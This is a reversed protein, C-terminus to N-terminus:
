TPPTKSVSRRAGLTGARPLDASSSTSRAASRRPLAPRAHEGAITAEGTRGAHRRPCAGREPLRSPLKGENRTTAVASSRSASRPSSTQRPSDEGAGTWRVAIHGRERPARTRAPTSGHGLRLVPAPPQYRRLPRRASSRRALLSTQPGQRGETQSEPHVVVDGAARRDLGLQEGDAVQQERLYWARRCAPDEVREGSRDPASTPRPASQRPCACSRSTGPAPQGAGRRRASSSRGRRATRLEEGVQPADGFSRMVRCRTASARGSGASAGEPVCRGSRSGEPPRLGVEPARQFAVRDTWLAFSSPEQGPRSCVPLRSVRRSAARALAQPRSQPHSSRLPQSAESGAVDPPCPTVASPRDLASASWSSALARGPRLPKAWPRWAPASCGSTARCRSRNAVWGERHPFSPGPYLPSAGLSVQPLEKKPLSM